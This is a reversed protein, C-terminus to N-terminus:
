YNVDYEDMDQSNENNMIFATNFNYNSVSEEDNENVEIELKEVSGKRIKSFNGGRPNMTVDGHANAHPIINASKYNKQSHIAFNNLREGKDDTHGSHLRIKKKSLVINPREDYDRRKLGIMSQKKNFDLDDEIRIPPNDSHNSPNNFNELIEESFIQFNSRILSHEPPPLLIKPTDPINPLPCNNVEKVIEKLQNVEIRKSHMNSQKSKVVM